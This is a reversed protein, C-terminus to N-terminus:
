EKSGSSALRRQIADYACSTRPVEELPTLDADDPLYSILMVVWSRKGKGVDLTKRPELIRIYSPLARLETSMERAATEYAAVMNFSLNRATKAHVQQALEIVHDIRRHSERLALQSRIHMVVMIAIVAVVVSASVCAGYKWLRPGFWGRVWAPVDHTPTDSEHKARSVPVQPMETMSLKRSTAAGYGCVPCSGDNKNLPSECLPCNPAANPKGRNSATSM